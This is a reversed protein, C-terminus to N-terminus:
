AQTHSPENAGALLSKAYRRADDDITRGGLMRALEEVRDERGLKDVAVNQLGSKEVMMHGNGLAAVQPAHTICIVQTTQALERLLRGIVDASTGGIGVDAEDLILCPLKSKRAIVLLISLSLRALEGGSAISRLPQLGFKQNTTVLFEVQDLGTNSEIESFEIAFEGDKIQMRRITDGMFAGLPKCAKRRVSSLKRAKRLFLERAKSAEEGLTELAHTMDLMSDLENQLSETHAGLASPAVKHKRAVEHIRDLRTELTPDHGPLNQLDALKRTLSNLAEEVNISASELLSQGDKLDPHTASISAVQEAINALENSTREGLTTTMELLQARVEELSHMQKVQLSLDDFENEGLELEQLETLQYQLLGRRDTHTAVEQKCAELASTATQWCQHANAVESALEGSEAFDDLWTLQSQQSLLQQSAFQTHIAVLPECIQRLTGLGVSRDNVWARSKGDKNSTRRITCRAAEDGDALGLEDLLLATASSPAVAFEASVECRDAGPRIQERSARRGLVMTLADLLISKGAGSEGTIVTLGQDFALDVSTVLAFNRVSLNLLM